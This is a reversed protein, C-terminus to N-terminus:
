LGLMRAFNAFIGAMIGAATLILFFYTSFSM